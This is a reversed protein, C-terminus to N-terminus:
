FCAEPKHDREIRAKSTDLSSAGSDIENRDQATFQKKMEPAPLRGRMLNYPLGYLWPEIQAPWVWSSGDGLPNLQVYFPTTCRYNHRWNWQNDAAGAVLVPTKSPSIALLIIHADGRYHYKRRGWTFEVNEEPDPRFAIDLPNGGGGRYSYEQTRKVWITTGNNLPVEEEWSVAKSCASLELAAIALLIVKAMMKLDDTTKPM